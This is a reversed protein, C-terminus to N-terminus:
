NTKPVLNMEHRMGRDPPFVSPPVKSVVVKFKKVLPYYSDSPNKQIWWAREANKTDELVAEDLLSSLNIEKEPRTIVVEDLDGAKLARIFEEFIMEDLKLFADVAPTAEHTIDGDEEGTM